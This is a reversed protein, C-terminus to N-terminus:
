AIIVLGQEPTLAGPTGDEVVGLAVGLDRGQLDM